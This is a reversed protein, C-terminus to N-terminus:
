PKFQAGEHMLLKAKLALGGAYGTLKGNSGIVRHCPVILAIPNAGNATGVARVAKENNISKAIWAYSKTEGCPIETLAQWVQKQFNTGTPALPIDFHKRSGTFYESLQQIVETFKSNDHSLGAFAIPSKGAQFALASLGHVNATLAIEGLPSQYTCYYM